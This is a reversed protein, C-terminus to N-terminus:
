GKVSGVVLGKVIYKQLFPYFLIVPGITLVATAMQLSNNPTFGTKAIGGGQLNRLLNTETRLKILYYQIPYLKTDTILMIANWWDNWYAIAYFLAVTAIIPLCLPFFIKFAIVADNAGDLKASEMLSVPIEKMYNRALFMNFPSFVLSPILLAFINNVLGFRRCIIYWPVMGGNFVMTIFFFMALSNRCQVAPNALTYAAMTTILTAIITGTVTVFVTIGYCRFVDAGNSFLIRYADPSFGAPFFSFGRSVIESEPTFSVIFVLILPLLCALTFLLVALHILVM